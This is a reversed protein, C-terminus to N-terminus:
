SKILERLMDLLESFDYPKQLYGVINKSAPHDQMEAMPHGGSTLLVRVDASIKQLEVLTELGDPKPMTMDLVVCDIDSESRFIDIAELGGAASLVEYGATEALEKTSMRVIAADDVVLIKGASGHPPRNPAPLGPPRTRAAPDVTSGAHTPPNSSPVARQAIDSARLATLKIKELCDQVAPQDATQSMALDAYHVVDVLLDNIDHITSGLLENYTADM